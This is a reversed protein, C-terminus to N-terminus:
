ASACVGSHASRKRSAKALAPTGAAHELVQVQRVGVGCPQHAVRADGAHTEGARHGPRATRADGCRQEPNAVEPELEAALIRGVHTGVGVERM